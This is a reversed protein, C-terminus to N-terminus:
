RLTRTLPDGAGYFVETRNVFLPEGPAPATAGVSQVSSALCWPATGNTNAGPGTYPPLTATFTTKSGVTSSSFSLCWPADIFGGEGGVINGDADKITPGDFDIQTPVNAKAVPIPAWDITVTGEVLQPRGNVDTFSNDWFVSSEDVTDTGSNDKIIEIIVGVEACPFEEGAKDGNEGRLFTVKKAIDGDGGLQERTDSCPVGEDFEITVEKTRTTQAGRTDTVTLSVDYKGARPYTATASSGTTGTPTGGPFAWVRSVISDGADPDTSTDTVDVTLPKNTSFTFDAVPPTNREVLRFTAGRLYIGRNANNSSSSVLLSDTFGGVAVAPNLGNVLTTTTTVPPTGVTTVLSGGSNDRFVTLSTTAVDVEVGFFADRVTLRLGEGRVVAANSGCNSTDAIVGIGNNPLVAIGPVADIGLLDAGTFQLTPCSATAAITQTATPEGTTDVVGDVAAFFKVTGTRGSGGPVDLVLDGIVRPGSSTQGSATMSAVGVLGTMVLGAVLGLGM